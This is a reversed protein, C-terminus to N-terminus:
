AHEGERTAGGPIGLDRQGAPQRCWIKVIKSVLGGVGNEGVKGDERALRPDHVRVRKGVGHKGGGQSRAGRNGDIFTRPSPKASLVRVAVRGASRAGRGSRAPTKIWREGRFKRRFQTEHPPKRSYQTVHRREGVEGSHALPFDQRQGPVAVVVLRLRHRQLRGLRLRPRPREDPAALIRLQTATRSRRSAPRRSSPPARGESFTTPFSM